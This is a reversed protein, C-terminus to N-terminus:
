GLRLEEHSNVPGAANPEVAVREVLRNTRAVPSHALDNSLDIRISHADRDAHHKNPAARRIKGIWFELYDFVLLRTPKGPSTSRLSHRVHHGSLLIQEM